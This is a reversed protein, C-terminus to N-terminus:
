DKSAHSQDRLVGSSYINAQVINVVGNSVLM